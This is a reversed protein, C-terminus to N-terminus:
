ARMAEIPSIRAARIAPGLGGALGMLSSFILAKVFVAPTARFSIVIESFTQFNMMPFSFLSLVLVCVSGIMGGVISLLLAEFVFSTLISFRSFGLARLTGIERSRHAVAGNMTIAAGIMAAMSLMVAFAFALIRLFDGVQASQNKYYDAERTVSAAYRKDGEVEKRYADFDSPSNLRVRASSVGLERGLAKRVVDLDGFIESEYSSGESSFVGVVQLPRNHRLDFTGGVAMGKFRGAIAKGVIVENTGAKPARGDVIKVEPRFAIGEAPTGRVTVNSVAGSGDDHEAMIVVVIEGVVGGAQNQAVQPHGRLLDIINNDLGSSLENASGKRLIIANDNRGTTAMAHNIGEGLMLSGAFVFVVLAIGFATVGSTIRRVLLSRVNYQLPVM